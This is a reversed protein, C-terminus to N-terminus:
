VLIAFCGACAVCAIFTLLSLATGIVSCIFGAKAYGAQDPLDKAQIGIIIGVIGVVAGAWSFGNGFAGFILSLIGLELSAIGM